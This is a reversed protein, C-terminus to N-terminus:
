EDRAAAEVDGLEVHLEGVSKSSDDGSSGGDLCSLSVALAHGATELRERRAVHVTASGTGTLTERGEARRGHLRM